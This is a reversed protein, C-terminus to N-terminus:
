IPLWTFEKNGIFKYQHGDVLLFDSNKIKEVLSGQYAADYLDKIVSVTMQKKVVDITYDPPYMRYSFEVEKPDTEQLGILVQNKGRNDCENCIVRKLVVGNFAFSKMFGKEKISAKQADNLNGKALDCANCGSLVIVAVIMLLPKGQM